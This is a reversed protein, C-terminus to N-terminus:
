YLQVIAHYLSSKMSSTRCASRVQDAQVLVKARQHPCGRWVRAANNSSSYHNVVDGPCKHDMSCIAVEAQLQKVDIQAEM